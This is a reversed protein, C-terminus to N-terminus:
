PCTSLALVDPDNRSIRSAINRNLSLNSRANDSNLLSMARCYLWRAAARKPDIRSRGSRKVAEAWKATEEAILRAFDAPTGPMVTTGLAKLRAAIAPDALAVNIQAGAACRPRSRPVTLTPM